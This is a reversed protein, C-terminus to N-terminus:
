RGHPTEEPILPVDDPGPSPDPEPGAPPRVGRLYSARIQLDIGLQETKEADLLVAHHEGHEADWTWLQVHRAGPRTEEVTLQPAPTAPRTADNTRGLYVRGRIHDAM